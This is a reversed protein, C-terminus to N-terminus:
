FELFSILIVENLIEQKNILFAGEAFELFIYPYIVTYLLGVYKDAIYLETHM